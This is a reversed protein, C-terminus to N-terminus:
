ENSDFTEVLDLSELKVLGFVTGEYVWVGNDEDLDTRTYVKNDLKNSRSHWVVVYGEPVQVGVKGSTVEVLREDRHYTYSSGKSLVVNIPLPLVNDTDLQGLVDCERAM